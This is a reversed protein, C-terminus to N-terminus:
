TWLFSACVRVRSYDCFKYCLHSSSVHGSPLVFVLPFVLFTERPTTEPLVQDEGSFTVKQFLCESHKLLHPDNM